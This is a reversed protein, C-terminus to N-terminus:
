YFEMYWRFILLRQISLKWCLFTLVRIIVFAAACPKLHFHDNPVTNGAVFFEGFMWYLLPIISVASSIILGAYRDPAICM